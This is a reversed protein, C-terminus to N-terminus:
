YQRSVLRGELMQPNTLTAFESTNQIVQSHATPSSINEENKHAVSKDTQQGHSWDVALRLQGHTTWHQNKTLRSKQKHPPSSRTYKLAHDMESATWQYAFEIGNKTSKSSWVTPTDPQHKTSKPFWATPRIGNTNRRSRTEMNSGTKHPLTHEWCDLEIRIKVNKSSRLTM